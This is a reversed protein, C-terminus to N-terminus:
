SGAVLTIFANIDLVNVQGDDNIDASNRSCDPFAAAYGAADALALIFPNIDLVDVVGDCNLDGDVGIAGGFFRGVFFDVVANETAAGFGGHGAGVIQRYTRYVGADALATALRTSQNLPVLTDATGHAIFFPPDDPTVWTIPNVQNCLTVLTPYPPNPNGLNNRIDGIGQGPDNWGVLNSEPSNPADHDITSGPPDTVDPNMNLIDTPGFYDVTAIVRSSFGLNGGTNGEIVAVSGSTGLLASLHGGASSGWCGIRNPDIGYTAANARLYRVAGKVDHIQAPFIAEGSLRYQISALAIGRALMASAAPPPTDHTGGSWGGGHIWIVLPRVPPGAVPTYIDMRLTVVGGADRPATAWVVDNFTPTVQATASAALVGSAIACYWRM